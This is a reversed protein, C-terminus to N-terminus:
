SCASRPAADRRRRRHSTPRRRAEGPAHAAYAEIAEEDIRVATRAARGARRRRPHRRHPERPRGTCPWSRRSPWGPSGLGAEELLGALDPSSSTWIVKRSVSGTCGTCAPTTSCAAAARGSGGASSWPTATRGSQRAEREDVRIGTSGRASAAGRPLDRGASCGGAPRTRVGRARRRGGLAPHRAAGRARLGDWMALILPRTTRSRM